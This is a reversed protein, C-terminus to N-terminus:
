PPFVGCSRGADVWAGEGAVGCCGWTVEGM